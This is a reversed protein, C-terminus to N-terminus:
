RLEDAAASRVRPVEGRKTGHVAWLPDGGEAGLLEYAEVDEFGSFHLYTSAIAVREEETAELWVRVAKSPFLRNSFSLVVVGDPRLVRHVERAAARPASLYDISVVCHVFDFAGDEYPLHVADGQANLDVVAYEGLQVNQALEAANMGLGAIRGYVPLPLPADELAAERAAVEADSPMHSIWSSCLDLVDVRRRRQRRFDLALEVYHLRLAAIARSDIHTVVRPSAYFSADNAEDMRSFDSPSYPWASPFTSPALLRPAAAIASATAAAYLGLTSRM